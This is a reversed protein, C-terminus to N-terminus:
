VKVIIKISSLNEILVVPFPWKKLLFSNGYPNVNCRDGTIANPCTSDFSYNSPAQSSTSVVVGSVKDSKVLISM